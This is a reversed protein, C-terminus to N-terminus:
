QNNASDEDLRVLKMGSLEIMYRKSTSEVLLGNAYIGYNAYYDDNELALHWINYNGPKTLPIARDDLCAMLRYKGETVYIGNLADITDQHQTETLEDELISHCGTIILDQFLEPYQDQSCLYLRNQIRDLSSPNFLKTTGITDIKLFGHKKTKVLMGPRCHKIKVYTLKNEILCLIETDEHFCPVGLTISTINNSTITPLNLDTANILTALEKLFLSNPDNTNLTNTLTSTSGNITGNITLSIIIISGSKLSSISVSNFQINANSLFVTNLAKKITQELTFRNSLTDFEPPMPLSVSIKIQSNISFPNQLLTQQSTIPALETIIFTNPNSGQISIFDDFVVSGTSKNMVQSSLVNSLNIVDGSIGLEEPLANVINVGSSSFINYNPLFNNNISDDTVLIDGNISNFSIIHNSADISFKFEQDITTDPNPPTNLYIVLSYDYPRNLPDIQTIEFSVNNLSSDVGKIIGSNVTPLFPITPITNQKLIITGISADQGVLVFWNKTNKLKIGTKSFSYPHTNIDFALDINTASADLVDILVGNQSTPDQVLFSTIKNQNNDISMKAAYNIPPNNDKQFNILVNFVTTQENPQGSLISFLIYIPQVLVINSNSADLLVIYSNQNPDVFYTFPKNNSVNIIEDNTMYINVGNPSFIQKQIDFVNDANCFISDLKHGYNNSTDSLFFNSVTNNNTLDFFGQYELTDADDTKFKIQYHHVKPDIDINIIDNNLLGVYLTSGNTSLCNPNQLGLAWVTDIMKGPANIGSGQALFNNIQTAFNSDDTLQIRSISGNDQNAVYMVNRDIVIGNPSYDLKNVGLWDGVYQSQKKSIDVRIINNNYPITGYLYGNQIALKHINEYDNLQITWNNDLSGSTLDMRNIQTGNAIYLFSEDTVLRDPVFSLIAGWPDYIVQQTDTNVRLITYIGKQSIYMINNAIAISVADHAAVSWNPDVSGDTLSLRQVSNSTGGYLVYLYNTKNVTVMDFIYKADAHHFIPM